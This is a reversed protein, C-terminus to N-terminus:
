QVLLPADGQALAIRDNVTTVLRWVGFTVLDDPDCGSRTAWSVGFTRRRAGAVLRSHHDGVSPSDGSGYREPIALLSQRTKRPDSVTSTSSRDATAARRPEKIRSNM